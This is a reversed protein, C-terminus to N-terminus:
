RLVEAGPDSTSRHSEWPIRIPSAPRDPITNSAYPALPENKPHWALALTSLLIGSVPSFGPAIRRM